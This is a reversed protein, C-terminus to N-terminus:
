KQQEMESDILDDLDEGDVQAGTQTSAVVWYKGRKLYRYREADERDQSHLAACAQWARWMWGVVHSRYLDDGHTICLGNKSAFAEFAAREQEINM